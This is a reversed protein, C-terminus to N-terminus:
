HVSGSEGAASFSPPANGPNMNREPALTFEVKRAQKLLSWDIWWNSISKEDMSLSKVYLRDPAGPADIEVVHDGLKLTAKPFSPSNVTFGGVSSIEPYLGLDAFVVWSSTAGLDDNGPEGGPAAPFMDTLTKRVVEQARWPHGTWNYIWPDGFSPENAIFFYPGGNWTGHQSFYDDLRANAAEAGGMAAILGNLDYPIMWTYQAANGEMFGDWQEPKFNPLFKGNLGRARIYKTDRDFLKTWLGARVMYRNAIEADGLSRAFQAISFDANEYELTLSGATNQGDDPVYGKSLYEALGPRQPCLRVHARPDDGGAVMAKLAAGTDFERGGFAYIGALIADSPDGPMDAAEDNAVSWVPLGGGQGADTLLSQAIDSGVDPFLLTILQVQSRYIDWGSINAYQNHGASLRHVKEDFGLYEGNVDNFVTPHLLSHYMATYFVKRQSESGGEVVAHDLATGWAARADGRVKEFDWGPIEKDLNMAANAASVYSIGVKVHLTGTNPAFALYGGARPGKADLLGESVRMEDFTGTSQPKEETELAFYVRYYNDHFCFEGGAVSGTIRNGRIAIDADHVHTLNRSLDILLTHADAGPPYHIRAIGSHVDAAIEVEIGTDLKVSYYGPQALEDAHKFGARYLTSRVPPPVTPLGLIPMMPVDGYVGCGPGSLHTLSFGRTVPDDYRYFGGDVPDPGWYLMGFPRAAGPHTNGFDHPAQPSAQTGILPDVQLVPNDQALAATSFIVVFAFRAWILSHM